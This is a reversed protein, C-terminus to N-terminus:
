AFAFPGAIFRIRAERRSAPLMAASAVNGAFAWDGSGARKAGPDDRDISIGRGEIGRVVTAGRGVPAERASTIGRPEPRAVCDRPDGDRPRRYASTRSTEQAMEWALV